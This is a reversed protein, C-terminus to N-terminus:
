RLLSPLPFVIGEDVETERCVRAADPALDAPLLVTQGARLPRGNLLGRGRSCLLVVPAATTEKLPAHGGAEVDVTQFDFYM